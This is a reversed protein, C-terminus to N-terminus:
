GKINCSSWDIDPLDTDGALIVNALTGNKSIKGISLQLKKSPKPNENTALYHPAMYLLKTGALIM